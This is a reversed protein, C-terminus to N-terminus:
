FDSLLLKEAYTNDSLIEKLWLKSNREQFDFM